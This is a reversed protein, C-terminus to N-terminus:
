TSSAAGLEGASGRVLQTAGLAVMIALLFALLAGVPHLAAVVPMDRMTALIPVIFVTVALAAALLIQRRGARAVAAVVLILIPVLHLIWGLTVHLETNGSGAFLGLGIFFVQVVIGVVFAWALGAYLYRAGRTVNNL